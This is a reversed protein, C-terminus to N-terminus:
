QGTPKKVENKTRERKDLARQLEDHARMGALANRVRDGLRTEESASESLAERCHELLAAAADLDGREIAVQAMCDYAKIRDIPDEAGDAVRQWARRADDPRKLAAYVQGAWLSADDKQRQTTAADSLVTEYAMLADQWSQGRRHIHGIEILARGHFPTGVGRDRAIALEALAGERQNEARLLESARFAGEACAAANEPYYERLARCAAIAAKRAADRAGGETGRLAQRLAQAYKLQAEASEKKPISVPTESPHDLAAAPSPHARARTPPHSQAPAGRSSALVACLLFLAPRHRRAPRQMPNM